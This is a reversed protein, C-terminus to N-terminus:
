GLGGRPRGPKPRGPRPRGVTPRGLLGLAKSVVPYFADAIETQGRLNPHLTGNGDGQRDQSQQYTVIWGGDTCYGHDEFAPPAGIVRWGHDEAAARIKANLPLYFSHYLWDVEREKIEYDGYLVGPRFYILNCLADPSTSVLDPYETIFVHGPSALPELATALKDYRAPLADLQQSVWQALTLGGKYKMDPCYGSKGSGACFTAVGGFELDNVGISLLVADAKGGAAAKRADDVQAPLDPREPNIGSYPGLLGSSITAGSCALYVFKVNTSPNRNRLRDAVQAEYSNNSRDCRRNQWQAPKSGKKPVDPNGEGSSLSDGLGVVLTTPTARPKGPRRKAGLASAAGGGWAAALALGVCVATGL